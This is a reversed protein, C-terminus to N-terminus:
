EYAEVEWEKQKNKEEKLPITVTVLTGTEEKSKIDISGGHASIIRKCIALGMGIGKAKTTFLPTFLKKLNKRTIGVGTDRFTIKLCNKTKESKIELKGGEPMAEIANTILNGFARMMQSIDVLVKPTNVTLDLIKVKKPVEIKSLIKRILSKVGIRTQHLRINGSFDLLDNVIKNSYKIDSEILDLMERSKEDMQSAMKMKLYYVAGSMGTLPNRLDHGVSAALEGITALREAKMLERTREEVKLELQDAYEKLKNRATELDRILRANEIAVAAQHVFLELPALSDKTPRRGDLPDDVSIIGVIRREGPLRLPAYLMDQPHWDIMEEPPIKSPVGAIFEIMKEPPTKSSIGHIHERVWSDKWPLYYFEGIRFRQFKPGLRERWVHGPAKKTWLIKVEEPALGATFMDIMELNQNRDSIVVRRWGLGKITEAILKLRRRLDKTRMMETSSKMLAALKISRKEVEQILEELNNAYRFNSLAIAAHSALIELLRQDRKNFANLKKREVNLIGLVKGGIKMPVALESRIGPVTKVFTEEMRVDPVYITKGKNAAKVTVGGKSGDLLLEMSLSTPYGRQNVIRLMNGDVILLSAYEFGLTKEMASLTLEYIEKINEAINLERSYTNLTSLKEEFRKRDDKMREGETVDRDVGRYGLLQEGPGIIPVGSTELIIVHGDKHTNRNVFNIFPKRRRFVKFAASKLQEREDKHFFDYFFRGLIEETTYGLVREVVPSSYTYRGEADVEWIWEGTNTAVDHFRKESERLQEEMKKRKTTDRIIGLTGIIENNKELPALIVEVPVINGRANKIKTRFTTLKGQLVNKHAKIAEPLNEAAILKRFSKGIHDERRLETIEEIKQNVTVFKGQNDLIYIADGANDFLWQFAESETTEKMITPATLERSRRDIENKSFVPKNKNM